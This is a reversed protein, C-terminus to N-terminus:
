VHAPRPALRRYHYFIGLATLGLILLTGLPGALSPLFWLTLGRVVLLSGVLSALLILGWDFFRAFLVAGIAGGALALIWEFVWGLNLSLADLFGLVIGGGAIFGIVWAIIKAFGKGIFGLVGLVVALGGVLLLGMFGDALGPLLRLLGIGLLAGAGAALLWLRNGFLWVLVGIILLTLGTWILMSKEQIEQASIGGHSAAQGCAVL